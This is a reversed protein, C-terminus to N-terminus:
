VKTVKKRQVPAPAPESEEEEDEDEDTTESAEASESTEASADPSSGAASAEKAAADKALAALAKAKKRADSYAQYLTFKTDFLENSKVDDVGAHGLIIDVPQRVVERTVTKTTQRRIEGNLLRCFRYLYEIIIDSMWEKYEYSMRVEDWPHKDKKDKPVWGKLKENMINNCVQRIYHAFSTENEEEEEEEVETEVVHTVVVPEVVAEPDKKAKKEAKKEEKRRAEDAVRAVDDVLAQKYCDLPCILRNFQLLDHGKEIAHRVKVIKLDHKICNAIAFETREHVMACITAAVQVSADKAFRVRMKSLLEIDTSYKTTKKPGRVPHKKADVIGAKIDAALKEARVKRESLKEAEAAAAAARDSELLKANVRGEKIDKALKEAAKKETEAAKKEREDNATRANGVLNRTTESLKDWSVLETIQTKGTKEEKKKGTKPNTTVTVIEIEHPEASRLEHIADEIGKNLGASDLFHKVRSPPIYIGQNMPTKTRSPQTVVKTTKKGRTKRVSTKRGRSTAIKLTATTANGSM